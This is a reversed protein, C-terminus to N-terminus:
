SNEDENSSDEDEISVESDDDDEEAEVIIEVTPVYSICIHCLVFCGSIIYILRLRSAYALDFLQIIKKRFSADLGLLRSFIGVNGSSWDRSPNFSPFASFPRSDAGLLLKFPWLSM